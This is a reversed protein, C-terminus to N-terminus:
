DIEIEGEYNISISNDSIPFSRMPEANFVVVEREAGLEQIKKILENGTM